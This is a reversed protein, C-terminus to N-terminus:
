TVVEEELGIRLVTTYCFFLPNPNMVLTSVCTNEIFKYKQARLQTVVVKISLNSTGGLYVDPEIM